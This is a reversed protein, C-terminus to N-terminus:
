PYATAHLGLGHAAVRWAELTAADVPRLGDTRPQREITTLQIEHPRLVSMAALWASRSREDCNGLSSGPGLYLLSQIRLNDITALEASRDHPCRRWAGDGPGPDWKVYCADASACATRAGQDDLLGDGNTLIVCRLRAAHARATIATVLNAFAPHDSPEGSGCICIVDLDNRHEVLADDLATLIASDAPANDATQDWPLEGLQCYPCRWRCTVRDVPSLNVGLSRGFRRSRVPGYIVGDPIHKALEADNATM